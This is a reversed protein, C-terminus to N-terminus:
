QPTCAAGRTTGPNCIWGGPCDSSTTCHSYCVTAGSAVPLCVGFPDGDRSQPCDSGTSCAHTCMRDSSTSMVLTCRDGLNACDSDAFCTAYTSKGKDLGCGAISGVGVLVLVILSSTRM